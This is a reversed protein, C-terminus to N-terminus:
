LRVIVGHQQNMSVKVTLKIGGVYQADRLLHVLLRREGCLGFADLRELLQNVVPERTFRRGRAVRACQLKQRRGAFLARVGTM